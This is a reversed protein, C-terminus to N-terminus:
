SKAETPVRGVGGRVILGLLVLLALGVALPVFALWRPNAPENPSAPSTPTNQTPAQPGDNVVPAASAVKQETKETEQSEKLPQHPDKDAVPKPPQPETTADKAAPPPVAAAAPPPVAAAAAAPAANPGPGLPVFFSARKVSEPDIKELEAIHQQAEPLPCAKLFQVVPV